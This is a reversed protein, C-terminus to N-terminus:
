FSGIKSNLPLVEVGIPLHTELRLALFIIELHKMYWKTLTLSEFDLVKVWGM